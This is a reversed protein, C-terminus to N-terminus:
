RFVCNRFVESLTAAQPCHRHAVWGFVAAGSLVLLFPIRTAHFVSGAWGEDHMDRSAKVLGGAMVGHFAAESLIVPAQYVLYVGVGFIIGVVVAFVVLIIVGDGDLDFGGGSSGGSHGGSGGGSQVSSLLGARAPMADAEAADFSSSAGGGGFGGGGTSLGSGGGSGGGSPWDFSGGDLSVDGLDLGGRAAQKRRVRVAYALWLRVLLFFVAYSCAVAIPYRLVLAQVGFFRLARSAMVGSLLVVSLMVTMHLRIFYRHTIWGQFKEHFSAGDEKM